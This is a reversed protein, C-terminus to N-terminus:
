FQKMRNHLNENEQDVKKNLQQPQHHNTIHFKNFHFTQPKETIIFVDNSNLNM